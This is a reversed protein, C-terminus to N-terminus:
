VALCVRERCSARGIQILPVKATKALDLVKSNDSPKRATTVLKYGDAPVKMMRRLVPEVAPTGDYNHYSVIVTVKSRLAAAKTKANEATEIEIDIAVAGADVAADLITLQEDISGNFRGHNQHRRCTALLTVDPNADLFEKIVAIGQRPSDLYDLRFELFKEGAEVERKAHALLKRPEAFGLAICVRPLATRSPM